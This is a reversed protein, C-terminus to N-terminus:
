MESNDVEFGSVHVEGTFNLALTVLYVLKFRPELRLDTAEVQSRWIKISFFLLIM